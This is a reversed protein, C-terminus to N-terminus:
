EYYKGRKLIKKKAFERYVLAEGGRSIKTFILDDDTLPDVLCSNIGVRNAGLIDTFLQDGIIYVEKTKYQYKELIKQFCKKFPKKSSPHLEINLTSFYNLRKSPSNSFLIVRFDMNTLNLFLNKLEVSPNNDHYGICTNDLDFLLCKIGNDKLKNYNIDYISRQYMTPILYEIMKKLGRM